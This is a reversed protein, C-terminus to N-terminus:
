KKDFYKMNSNFKEQNKKWIEFMSDIFGDAARREEDPSNTGNKYVYEMIAFQMDAQHSQHRLWTESYKRNEKKAIMATLVISLISAISTSIQAIYTTIVHDFSALFAVLVNIINVGMSCYLMGSKIKFYNDKNKTIESGEQLDCYQCRSRNYIITKERFKKEFLLQYLIKEERRINLNSLVLLLILDPL